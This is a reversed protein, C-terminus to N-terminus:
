AALSGGRRRGARDVDAAWSDVAVRERDAALSADSAVLFPEVGGFLRPQAFLRDVLESPAVEDAPAGGVGAVCVDQEFEDVGVRSAWRRSRL